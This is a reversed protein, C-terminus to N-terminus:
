GGKKGLIVSNYNKNSSDELKFKWEGVGNNWKDGIVKFKTLNEDITLDFLDSPGGYVWNKAHGGFFPVHKPAHYTITFDPKNDGSMIFHKRLM